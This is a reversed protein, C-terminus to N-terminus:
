VDFGEQHRKGDEWARASTRYMPSNWGCDCHAYYRPNIGQQKHSLVTIRVYHSVSRAPVEEGALPDSM